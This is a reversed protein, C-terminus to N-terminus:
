SAQAFHQAAAVTLRSRGAVELKLYAYRLQCEVTRTSVGRDHAIQANTLGQGLLRVTSLEAPTLRTWQDTTVRHSNATPEVPATALTTNESRGTSM